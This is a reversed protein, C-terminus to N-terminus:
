KQLKDALFSLAADRNLINMPFKMKLDVGSKTLAKSVHEVTDSPDIVVITRHLDEYLGMVAEVLSYASVQNGETYPNAIYFLMYASESKAADEKKQAEENWDAVVPNFIADAAVGRKLLEKTFSERWQNKGCTGGLFVQNKM